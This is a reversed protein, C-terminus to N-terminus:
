ADGRVNSTDSTSKSQTVPVSAVVNASTAETEANLYPAEIGAKRKPHDMSYPWTLMLEAYEFYAKSGQYDPFDEFPQIKHQLEALRDLM